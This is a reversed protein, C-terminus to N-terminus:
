IKKRVVSVLKILKRIIGDFNANKERNQQNKRKKENSFRKVEFYTNRHVKWTLDPKRMSFVDQSFHQNPKLSKTKREWFPRFTVTQAKKHLPTSCKLWRHFNFVESIAAFVRKQGFDINKGSLLVNQTAIASTLIQKAYKIAEFIIKLSKKRSKWYNVASNDFKATPEHNKNPSICDLMLSESSHM